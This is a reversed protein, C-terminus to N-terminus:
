KGSVSDKEVISVIISPIPTDVVVRQSMEPIGNVLPMVALNNDGLIFAIWKAHM